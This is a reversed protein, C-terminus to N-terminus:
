RRRGKERRRVEAELAAIRRQASRVALELNLLRETASVSGGPGQVSAPAEEYLLGTRRTGRPDGKYRFRVPKLSSVDAEAQREEEAGLHRVGEKLAAFCSHTGASGRLIVGGAYVAGSSVVLEVTAPDTSPDVHWGSMGSQTGLQVSMAEASGLSYASDGAAWLYFDVANGERQEGAARTRISHRTAGTQDGFAIQASTVSSSSNGARLELGVQGADGSGSMDLRAGTPTLGLGAKASRDLLFLATGDPSSAKIAYADEPQLGVELSARPVLTGAGMVGTVTLDGSTRTGAWSAAPLLALLALAKM